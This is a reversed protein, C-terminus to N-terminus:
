ALGRVAELVRRLAAADVDAGVRVVVRGIAIEMRGAAEAPLSVATLGESSAASCFGILGASVDKIINEMEAWPPQFETGWEVVFGYVKAKGPDILHRGYVYDDSAGSTPYLGYSSM